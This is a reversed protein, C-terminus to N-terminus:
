GRIELTNQEAQSYLQELDIEPYVVVGEVEKLIGNLLVLKWYDDDESHCEVVILVTPNARSVKALDNRHNYWKAAVGRYNFLCEVNYKDEVSMPITRIGESSKLSYYTYISM